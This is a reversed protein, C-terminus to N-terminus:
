DEIKEILGDVMSKIVSLSSLISDLVEENYLVMAKLDALSLNKLIDDDM